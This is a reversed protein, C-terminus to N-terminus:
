SNYNKQYQKYNNCKVLDYYYDYYSPLFRTEVRLGRFAVIRTTRNEFSSLWNRYFASRFKFLPCSLYCTCGTCCVSGISGYLRTVRGHRKNCTYNNSKNSRKLNNGKRDLLNELVKCGIQFKFCYNM